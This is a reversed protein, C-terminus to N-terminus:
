TTVNILQLTNLQIPITTNYLLSSGDNLTLIVGDPTTTSETVYKYGVPAYGCKTFEAINDFLCSLKDESLYNDEAEVGNQGGHFYESTFTVDGGSQTVALGNKSSDKTVTTIEVNTGRAVATYEPTSTYDNVADAILQATTSGDTTYLFTNSIQVGDVLLHSAVDTAGDATINIIASAANSLIKYHRIWDLQAICMQLKKEELANPSGFRARKAIESAKCALGWAAVATRVDIDNQNYVM